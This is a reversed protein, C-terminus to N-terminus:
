FNFGAGIYLLEITGVGVRLRVRNLDFSIGGFALLRLKTSKEASEAGFEDITTFSSQAAGIGIELPEFAQVLALGLSQAYKKDDTEYMKDDRGNRHFSARISTRVKENRTLTREYAVTQVGHNISLGASVYLANNYDIVRHSQAMLLIPCCCLVTIALHKIYWHM